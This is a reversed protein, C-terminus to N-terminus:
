AKIKKSSGAFSRKYKDIWLLKINHSTKILILSLFEDKNINITLIYIIYSQIIKNNKNIELGNYKIKGQKM